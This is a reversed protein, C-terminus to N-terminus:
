NLIKQAELMREMITRLELFKIGEQTTWYTSSGGFEVLKSEELLRLIWKVESQRIQWKLELIRGTTAGAVAAALICAAAGHVDM